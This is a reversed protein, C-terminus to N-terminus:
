KRGLRNQIHNCPIPISIIESVINQSLTFMWATNEKISECIEITENIQHRVDESIM